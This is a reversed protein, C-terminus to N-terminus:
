HSKTNFTLSIYTRTTNLELYIEKVSKLIDDRRLAVLETHKNNLDGNVKLYETTGCTNKQLKLLKHPPM